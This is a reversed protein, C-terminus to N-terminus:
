RKAGGQQVVQASLRLQAEAFTKRLAEREAATIPVTSNIMAQIQFTPPQAKAMDGWRRLLTGKAGGPETIWKGREDCIAFLVVAHSLGERTIELEERPPKGEDGGTAAIFERKTVAWGGTIYCDTLPHYGLFPFEIGVTIPMAGARFRWAKSYIGVVELKSPASPDEAVQKAGGVEPPLQFDFKEFLAANAIGLSGTAGWRSVGIAGGAVGLVLFLV